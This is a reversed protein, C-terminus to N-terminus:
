VSMSKDYRVKTTKSKCLMKHTAVHNLLSPSIAQKLSIEASKVLSSECRHSILAIMYNAATCFTKLPLTTCHVPTLGTVELMGTEKNLGWAVLGRLIGTPLLPSMKAISVYHLKQM